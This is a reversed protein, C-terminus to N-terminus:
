GLAPSRSEATPGLNSARPQLAGEAALVTKLAAIAAEIMSDDPERTTLRQVALGPKLFARVIARHYHSAGLRILEYGLGAILPILLIRSLVLEVLPPHGLVAFVLFSIIVVIVLFTTGCRPHIVTFPRVNAVTLDVGAEYANVTKHEAGHYGFVRQVDRMLSIALMYGLILALRFVSEILNRLFPSPVERDVASTLFIPLVFFLAVAFGLALVMGGLVAQRTGSTSEAIATAEAEGGMAVNASFALTRMGLALTDWLAIAGRVLPWRSWRSHYIAGQLPEGHIVIRGSPDRVAVAMYHPGRMMVGEIVAQGGYFVPPPRM